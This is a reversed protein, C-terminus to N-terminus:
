ADGGGKDDGARVSRRRALARFVRWGAACAAVVIVVTFAAQFEIDLHLAIPEAAM